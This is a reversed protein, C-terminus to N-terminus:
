DKPAALLPAAATLMEAMFRDRTEAGSIGHTMPYDLNRADIGADNLRQTYAQGGKRLPDFEGTVIVAPPLGTVDEALLPSLYPSAFDADAGGYFQGLMQLGLAIMPDDGLSAGTMDLAPALLIQACLGPGGRDRVLMTLAAAVNGGSSIGFVAIRAPDVNLETAQAVIWQLAAYADDIQTPHRFEPALRYDLNVVVADLANTANRCLGDNFEFGVAGGGMWWGGGHLLLVAGFPGDGEPTYVRAALVDDAAPIDRYAVSGVAPPPAFLDIGGPIRGSAIVLADHQSRLRAVRAAWAADCEGEAPFATPWDPTAGLAAQADAVLQSLEPDM